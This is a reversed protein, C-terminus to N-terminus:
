WGLARVDRQVDDGVVGMPSTVSTLRLRNAAAVSLDQCFRALIIGGGNVAPVDIVLRGPDMTLVLSLWGPGFQQVDAAAARGPACTVTFVEGGILGRGVQDVGHVQACSCTGCTRYGPDGMHDLEGGRAQGSTEARPQVTLGELIVPRFPLNAVAAPPVPQQKAAIEVTISKDRDKEASPDAITM